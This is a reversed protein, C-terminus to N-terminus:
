PKDYDTRKTENFAEEPWTTMDDPRPENSGFVRTFLYMIYGLFDSM